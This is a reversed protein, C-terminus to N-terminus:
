LAALLASINGMQSSVYNYVASGAVANTETSTVTGAVTVSGGGGTESPKNLLDNYDGTFAVQALDEVDAKTALENYIASGVVANAGNSAVASDLTINGGGADLAITSNTAQNLTFSGKTTRGQTFTIVANKVNNAIQASAVTSAINSVVTNFSAIESSTHTHTASAISLQALTKTTGGNLAVGNITIANTLKGASVASTASAANTASNVVSTWAVGTGTGNVQLVKNADSASYAPLESAEDGAHTIDTAVPLGEV